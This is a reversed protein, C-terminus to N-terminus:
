TSISGKEGKRLTANPESNKIRDCTLTIKMTFCPIITGSFGKM